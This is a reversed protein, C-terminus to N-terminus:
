LRNALPSLLTTAALSSRQAGTAPVALLDGPRIDAPLLADEILVESIDGTQGIVTLHEDKAASLRGLLRATYRRGRQSGSLYDSLSGDVTVWVRDGVRKVDTVRYVTVGCPGAIARGPEVTIRPETVRREACLERVVRHLAAAIKWPWLPVDAPHYAIAHGGGMNLEALTVSYEAAVRARLGLLQRAAEEYPTVSSLQSGPAAIHCHLGVLELSPESLIRGVARAVADSAVCLGRRQDGHPHVRLLVKQRAEDVCLRAVVDIQALSDLVLRGVGLATARKLLSVPQNHAHLIIRQMPFRGREAIELEDASCVTLSLGTGDVIRVLEVTLRAKATYAVESDYFAAQYDTCRGRFEGTDFVQAPTGQRSAVETLRVAGVSLEGGPLHQTSAPWLWPELPHPLSSRLSPILDALTV